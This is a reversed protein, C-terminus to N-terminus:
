LDAVPDGLSVSPELYINLANLESAHAQVTDGSGAYLANVDFSGTVWLVAEQDGLSSDLYNSLIGAAHTAGNGAGANVLYYKGSGSGTSALAMIAGPFFLAPNPTPQSQDVNPTQSGAVTVVLPQVPFKNAGFLNRYRAPGTQTFFAM